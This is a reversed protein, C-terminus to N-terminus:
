SPAHLCKLCNIKLNSPKVLFSAKGTPLPDPLRISRCQVPDTVETFTSKKSKNAGEDPIRQKFDVMGNSHVGNQLQKNIM